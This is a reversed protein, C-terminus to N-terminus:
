LSKSAWQFLFFVQELYQLKPDETRPAWSSQMRVLQECTSTCRWKNHSGSCTCAAGFSAWFNSLQLYTYQLHLSPHFAKPHLPTLARLWVIGGAKTSFRLQNPSFLCQTLCKSFSQTPLILPQLHGARQDISSHDGLHFLNELTPRVHIWLSNKRPNEKGNDTLPATGTWRWVPMRSLLGSWRLPSSWGSCWPWSAFTKRVWWPTRECGKQQRLHVPLSSAQKRM